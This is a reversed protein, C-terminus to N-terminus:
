ICQSELCDQSQQYIGRGNTVKIVRRCSIENALRHVCAAHVLHVCLNPVSVLPEVASGNAPARIQEPTDAGQQGQLRMRLKQAALLVEGENYDNLVTSM